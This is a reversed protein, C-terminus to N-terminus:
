RFYGYWHTGSFGTKLTYRTLLETTVKLDNNIFNDKM